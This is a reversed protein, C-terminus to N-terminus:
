REANSLKNILERLLVVKEYSINSSRDKTCVASRVGLVDFGLRIATEVDNLTIGGAIAAMLGSRHANNVFSELYELPLHRLSSVGNKVRTDIMVGHANTERAVHIVSKPDIYNLKSYDAYGVLVVRPKYGADDIGEYALEVVRIAEKLSRVGLGIKLYTPKLLSVAYAALRILPSAEEVDGIAVSTERIGNVLKIVEGVSRPRPAGLSGISPDKVDIIDAGAELAVRAENLDKVSVLLKM